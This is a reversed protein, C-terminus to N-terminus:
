GFIADGIKSFSMRRAAESISASSSVRTSAFALSREDEFSCDWDVMSGDVAHVFVRGALGRLLLRLLGTPVEEAQGCRLRELLDCTRNLRGGVWELVCVRESIAHRKQLVLFTFHKGKFGELIDLWRASENNPNQPSMHHDNCLSDVTSGLSCIRLWGLGFGIKRVHGEETVTQNPHHSKQFELAVDEFNATRHLKRRVAVRELTDWLGIHSPRVAEVTRIDQMERQGLIDM